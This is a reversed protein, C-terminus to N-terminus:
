INQHGFTEMSISFIYILLWLKDKPLSKFSKCDVDLASVPWQWSSAALIRVNSSFWSRCHHMESFTKEWTIYINTNQLCLLIQMNKKKSTYNISFCLCHEGLSESRTCSLYAKAIILFSDKSLNLKKVLIVSELQLLVVKRVSSLIGAFQKALHQHM